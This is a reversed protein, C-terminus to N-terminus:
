PRCAVEDAEGSTAGGVTLRYDENLEAVHSFGEDDTLYQVPGSLQVLGHQGAAIRASPGEAAAGCVAPICAHSLISFSLIVAASRAVDM